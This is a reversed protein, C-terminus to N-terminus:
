AEGSAEATAVFEFTARNSPVDVSVLKVTVLDGPSLGGIPVSEAILQGLLRPETLELSVLSGFTGLVKAKYVSASGDSLLRQYPGEGPAASRLSGLYQGAEPVYGLLRVRARDGLHFIDHTSPLPQWSLEPLLVLISEGEYEFTVGSPEIRSVTANVIEGAKNVSKM